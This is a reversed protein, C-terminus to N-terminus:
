RTLQGVAVITATLFFGLWALIMVFLDSRFFKDARLQSWSTVSLQQGTCKRFVRYSFITALCLNCLAVWPLLVVLNELRLIRSAGSRASPSLTSATGALFMAAVCFWFTALPWTSWGKMSAVDRYERFMSITDRLTAFFKVPFGLKLLRFAVVYWCVCGALAFLLAAFFFLFFGNDLQM